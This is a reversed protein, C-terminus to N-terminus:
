AHQSSGSPAKPSWRTRWEWLALVFVPAYELWVVGNHFLLVRDQASFYFKLYYMPLMASLILMSPRPSLALFPVIWLYYWPFQTPSLMFMAAIVLVIRDCVEQQSAIPRTSWWGMWALLVLFVSGRALMGQGDEGLGLIGGTIETAKAFIMFLADNMEWREGYASFGSRDGLAISPLMPVAILALLLVFLIGGALWRKPGGPAARLTLPILLIPWIKAGIALALASAAPTRRGHLAFLLAALVFPLAILDMHASNVTEKIVVPNWWYIAAFHVPKGLTRLLLVVLVLTVVDFALLVGRWAGLSWPRILHAMAFAGQAVPPYVTALEAHNIRGHVGGSEAALAQLGEPIEESATEALVRDPIIPYPNHGNAVVAGDWLYRYYDDEQIPQSPLLLARLLVGVGLVLVILGRRNGAMGHLRYVALLYAAGCAMLICVLLLHPRDRLPSGYEFRSSLAGVWAMGAVLVGAAGWVVATNKPDQDAAM